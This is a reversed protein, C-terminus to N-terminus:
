AQRSVPNGTGLMVALWRFDESNELMIKLIITLPVSLLMGVPGWVWGWFLLSLFVVLTSIGFRRGMLMPEVLSGLVISIVLYGVAVLLAKGVGFQVAAILVTPVSAIIAGISPIYHLFFAVLGWFIPFDIGLVSLWAAVLGGTALCVVTKLGLYRQVDTVIKTWRDAREQSEDLALRLKGPLYTAEMLIFITTLIVLLANQLLGAVTAVLGRVLGIVRSADVFDSATLPVGREQVWAVADQTGKELLEQYRPLQSTFENMSGLILFGVGSLVAIDALVTASVALATPVRHRQLFALLPLSLIAVFVALLFPILIPAAAQLGAIVVIICAFTLLYRSGPSHGDGVEHTTAEDEQTDM